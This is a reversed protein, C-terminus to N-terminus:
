GRWVRRCACPHGGAVRRLARPNTSRNLAGEFMEMATEALPPRQLPGSPRSRRHADLQPAHARTPPRNQHADFLRHVHPPGRVVASARATAGAREAAAVIVALRPLGHLEIPAPRLHRAPRRNRPECRETSSPRPPSTSSAPSRSASRATPAEDRLVSSATRRRRPQRRFRSGREPSADLDARDPEPGPM